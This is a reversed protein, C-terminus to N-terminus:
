RSALTLALSFDDGSDIIAGIGGLVILLLTVGGWVGIHIWSVIRGAKVLGEGTLRGGSADIKRQASPAMVLAVVAPVPLFWCVVLSVISLVLVTIATGDTQPQPTYGYPQQSGYPPPGGYQPPPPPPQGPGYPPHAAGPSSPWGSPPPPPGPQQNSM